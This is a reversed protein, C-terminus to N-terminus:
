KGEGMTTLHPRLTCVYLPVLPQLPLRPHNEITMRELIM